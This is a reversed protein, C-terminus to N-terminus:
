LHSLLCGLTSLHNKWEESQVIYNQLDDRYTFGHVRMLIGIKVVNATQCGNQIVSFGNQYLWTQFAQNHYLDQFSLKTAIHFGGSLTKKTQKNPKFYSTVGATEL